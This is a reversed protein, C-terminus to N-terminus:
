DGVKSRTTGLLLVEAPQYPRVVQPAGMCQEANFAHRGHKNAASDCRNGLRFKTPEFYLQLM